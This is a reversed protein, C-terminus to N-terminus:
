PPQGYWGHLFITATSGSATFSMSLRTWSPAAPTWTLSGGQVGLHVYNGQVWASLTYAQGPVVSVTQACRAHDSATVNGRLARSGSHVPSSVVTAATCSWGATTGSEFGPNVLLNAQVSQASATALGATAPVLLVLAGALCLLTRSRPTM